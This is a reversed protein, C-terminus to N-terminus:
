GTQAAQDQRRSALAADELVIKYGVVASWVATFILALFVQGFALPLILTELITVAYNPHRVIRYPGRREISAGPLTIIRHTWFPGLSYIIWYRVAQLLLYLAILGWYVPATAPILLFLAAIWALHAIAVVPYYERGEEHAGQSLLARTNRASYFEEALRQVLVLLAAIQPAGIWDLM